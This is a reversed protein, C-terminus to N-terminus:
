DISSTVLDITALERGKGKSSTTYPQAQVVPPRGAWPVSIPSEWIRISCDDSCSAFMNPNRPNWAVDNVSGDGHGNLVELLVGTERHWVYVKGDIDASDICQEFHLQYFFEDGESGSVIFNEDVGGFCSRIVHHGQRQGTFKRIIRASALDWLQLEQPRFFSLFFLCFEDIEDAERGIM